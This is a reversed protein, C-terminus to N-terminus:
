VSSDQSNLIDLFQLSQEGNNFRAHSDDVSKKFTKPALNFTLAIFIDIKKLNCESLVVMVSLGILGSNEM